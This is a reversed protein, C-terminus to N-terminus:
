HSFRRLSFPHLDYDPVHNQAFQCAIDALAPALPLSDYGGGSIILCDANQPATDIIGEGDLTQQYCEVTGRLCGGVGSLTERLFRFCQSGDSAVSGFPLLTDASSLSLASDERSVPLADAQSPFASYQSGDSFQLQIAPFQNNASYRGDAQFWGTVQRMTRMPLEPMIQTLLSGSSLLVKHGRYVGDATEVWQEGEHRQISIVPCNFLQGAGQECALRVWESVVQQADVFCGQPDFVAESDAPLTLQPWRAQVAAQTLTESDLQHRVSMLIADDPPAAYLVGSYQILSPQRTAFEQWQQQSRAALAQRAPSHQSYPLPLRRLGSHAGFSHPPHKADIMLVKLGARSAYYGTAAGVSGSGAIILDYVM